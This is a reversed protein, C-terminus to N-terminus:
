DEKEYPNTYTEIGLENDNAGQHVGHEFAEHKAKRIEEAFWRDFRADAEPLSVDWGLFETFAERVQDTTPTYQTSM